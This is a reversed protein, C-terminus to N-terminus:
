DNPKYNIKCFKFNKVILILSDAIEEIEKNSKSPTNSKRVSKSASSSMECDKKHRSLGSSNTYSKNCNTFPCCFKKKNEM